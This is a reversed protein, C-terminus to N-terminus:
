RFWFCIASEYKLRFIVAYTISIIILPIVQSTINMIIVRCTPKAVVDCTISKRHNALVVFVKKNLCISHIGCKLAVSVDSSIENGVLVTEEPNLEEESMLRDLFAKEPKMMGHDSSIYIKDLIDQLGFIMRILVM